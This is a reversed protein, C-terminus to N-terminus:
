RACGAAGTEDGLLHAGEIASRRATPSTCPEAAIVTPVQKSIRAPESAESALAQRCRTDVDDFSSPGAQTRTLHVPTHM